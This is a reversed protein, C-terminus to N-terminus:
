LPGLLVETGANQTKKVNRALFCGTENSKDRSPVSATRVLGLRASGLSSVQPMLYSSVRGVQSHFDVPVVHTFSFLLKGKDNKEKEMNLVLIGGPGPSLLPLSSPRRDFGVALLPSLGCCRGIVPQSVPCSAPRTNTLDM